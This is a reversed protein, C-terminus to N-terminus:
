FSFVLSSTFRKNTVDLQAPQAGEASMFRYEDLYGSNDYAFDLGFQRSFKIGLGL